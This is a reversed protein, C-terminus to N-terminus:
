GSRKRLSSKPSLKKRHRLGKPKYRRRTKKTQKYTSKNQRKAMKGIQNDYIILFKLTMGYNSFIYGLLLYYFTICEKIGNVKIPM